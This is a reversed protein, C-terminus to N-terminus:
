ARGILCLAPDLGAKDLLYMEGQMQINAEDESEEHDYGLLHFLGHASLVALEEALIHGFSDAQHKAVSLCIVVDGLLDKSHEFQKEFEPSPFSLVDTLSDKRKFRLHLDQMTEDDVLCINISMEDLDSGTLVEKITDVVQEREPDDLLEFGIFEINM